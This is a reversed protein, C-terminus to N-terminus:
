PRMSSSNEMSGHLRVLRMLALLCKYASQPQQQDALLTDISDIVIKVPGPTGELAQVFDSTPVQAPCFRRVM